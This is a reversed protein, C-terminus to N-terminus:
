QRCELGAEIKWVLIVGKIMPLPWFYEMACLRRNQIMFLSPNM